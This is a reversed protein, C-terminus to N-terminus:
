MKSEFDITMPPASASPCLEPNIPPPPVVDYDNKSASQSAFRYEVPLDDRIEPASINFPLDDPYLSEVRASHVVASDRRLSAHLTNSLGRMPEIHTAQAAQIANM